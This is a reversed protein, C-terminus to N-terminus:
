LYGSEKLFHFLRETSEAVSLEETNVTIEPSDPQEYPADIGTFNKIIGARAKLYLGKADRRECEELSCDLYVEVFDSDPVLQRVRRRDDRYPSIFAAITIMGARVFLGATEGIRRINEARDAASFGLDSNLGHRVNDGDLVMVQYGTDFLRRELERAITTKGSGSLGTLWIIFSRHRNRRTREERAVFNNTWVVHRDPDKTIPRGTEAVTETKVTM